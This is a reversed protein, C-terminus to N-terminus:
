LQGILRCRTLYQVLTPVLRAVYGCCVSTISRIVADHEVSTYYVAVVRRDDYTKTLFSSRRSTKNVVRDVQRPSFTRFGSNLVFNWLSTGNNQLYGFKRVLCHPVPPLFTGHWFGARHPWGISSRSAVSVSLCLYLAM